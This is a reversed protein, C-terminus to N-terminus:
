RLRVKDVDARCADDFGLASEQGSNFRAGLVDLVGAGEYAWYMVCDDNVDHAGHEADRHNAVMELGNDVLGIVHGVEHTAVSIEAAECLKASLRPLLGSCGMEITKLFLVVNRNAWAFGLVQGNEDDEASHGDVLLLHIKIAGTSSPALDDTTSELDFVEQETWAHEAGRSEISGSAVLEIGAPKDLLSALEQTLAPSVGSRLAVSPVADVEFVLRSYADGRIYGAVRDAASSGGPEESGACGFMAVLLANWRRM